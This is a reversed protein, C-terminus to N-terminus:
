RRPRMRPTLGPQLAESASVQPTPAAKEAVRSWYNESSVQGFRSRVTVSFDEGEALRGKPLDAPPIAVIGGDTILSAADASKALLAGTLTENARATRLDHEYPNEGQAKLHEFAAKLARVRAPDVADEVLQRM